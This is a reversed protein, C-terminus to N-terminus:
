TTIHDLEPWYSSYSTKSSSKPFNGNKLLISVFSSLNREAQSLMAYPTINLVVAAM